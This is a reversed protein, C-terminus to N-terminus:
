VFFGQLCVQRINAHNLDNNTFPAIDPAGLSVFKWLKMYIDTTDITGFLSYTTANNLATGIPIRALPQRLSPPDPLTLRLQQAGNGATGGSTNNFYANFFRIGGIAVVFGGTTSFSPNTGGASDLISAFTSFSYPISSPVQWTGDGFLAKTADDPLDILQALTLIQGGATCLPAGGVGTPIQITGDFAM